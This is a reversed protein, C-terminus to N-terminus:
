EVVQSRKIQWNAKIHESSTKGLLGWYEAAAYDGTGPRMVWINDETFVEGKYIDRVAVVSANAFRKTVREEEVLGKKGGRESRLYTSAKILDRLDQPSMSCVIDPGDRDKSDTFHREVISAGLAVAGYCAYNNETHDSYGVVANSFTERLERIAELRVIEPPTPYVNTCHLLAYPVAYQEIISVSGRVEDLESMGTSLIIPKGMSAVYDVLPYNNCEGSGIKFATVNMAVLRDVAKRSFPTSLFLMGLEEVREKLAVEEDFSLSCREMITYIPEPSNGPKIERAENSMEDDLVHTQHKVAEAGARKASEVIRFASELDGGHNIGIEAVVLPVHDEGVKRAGLQIEPSAM